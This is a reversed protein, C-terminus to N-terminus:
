DGYKKYIENLWRFDDRSILGTSIYSKLISDTVVAIATIEKDINYSNRLINSLKKLKKLIESNINIEKHIKYFEIHNVIVSHLEDEFLRVTMAANSIENRIILLIGNKKLNIVDLKARLIALEREKNSNYRSTKINFPMMSNTVVASVLVGNIDYKQLNSLSVIQVESSIKDSYTEIIKIM